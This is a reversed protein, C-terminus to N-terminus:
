ASVEVTEHVGGRTLAYSFGPLLAAAGCGGDLDIALLALQQDPGPRLRRRIQAIVSECAAQVGLGGRMREIVLASAAIRLALEGRGTAGAAGVEGDVYLGAGVIPSDGVRGHMRNMLGSTSCAGAPRGGSDLALSVITDHNELNAPAAESERLKEEFLRLTEATILREREMGISRAFDAAGEGALLVHDTREMVARAVSVAHVFGELAAVAGCRLEHDMIVADLTVRGLRDPYGGRGVSHVAPDAEAARVAQEVADLPRGAALHPWGARNAASGHNWTSVLVPESM